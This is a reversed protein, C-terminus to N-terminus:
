FLASLGLSYVTRKYVFINETSRNDTYDVKARLKVDRSFRYDAYAAAKYRDDQRDQNATAPYDSARYSLDGTLHWQQNLKSTFRGRLTHRTPSYSFFGTSLPPNGPSIDQRNNLELEYYVRTKDQKGYARYEARFRQRWGDLYDFIARDSNIDEYSYRFYLRQNRSLSNRAEGGLKYITQYDDGGYKIKSMNLTYNTQWDRNIQLNKKVGAGYEYEDFQNENFYDINYFYAEGLWGTKRDGAFLYDVSAVVESFRDSKESTIGLPAFNVNDDYGLAGSLYATWQKSLWSPKRPAKRTKLKKESLAVLKKNQSNSAVRTFWKKAAKKDGQKLAVLGLNYEALSQMGRYNRVKSFYEGAKDYNGLKYYSSALNYYLAPSELGSAEVKEFSKVAASYDGQKFSQTGSNFNQQASAAMLSASFGMLVTTIILLLRIKISNM